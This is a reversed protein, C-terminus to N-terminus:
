KRKFDHFRIGLSDKEDTTFRTKGSGSPGFVYVCRLITVNHKNKEFFNLFTELKNEM